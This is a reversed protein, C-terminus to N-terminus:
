NLAFIVDITTDVEVKEGNVIMPKYRWKRVAEMASQALLPHGSVLEMKYVAGDLGIIVHLRVTGQVRSQRALLPYEPATKEILMAAQAAGSTQVRKTHADKVKDSDARSKPQEQQPKVKPKPPPMEQRGFSATVTTLLLIQIFISIMIQLSIAHRPPEDFPAMPNPKDLGISNRVDSRGWM